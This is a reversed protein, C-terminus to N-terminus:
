INTWSQWSGNVLKRYQLGSTGGAVIYFQVKYNPNCILQLLYGNPISTGGYNCDNTYAFGNLDVSNIDKSIIRPAYEGGLGIANKVTIAMDDIGNKANTQFQTMTEANAPTTGNQFNILNM